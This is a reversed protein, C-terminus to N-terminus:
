SPTVAYHEQNSPVWSGSHLDSHCQACLPIVSLWNQKEYSWHHYQQATNSCEPKACLYAGQPLLRGSRIANRVASKASSREGHKKSYRKVKERTWQPNRERYMREYERRDDRTERQWSKCCEKCRSDLGSRVTRNRYFESTAKVENCRSCKKKQM